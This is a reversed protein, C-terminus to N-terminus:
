QQDARELLGGITRALVKRAQEVDLHLDSRLTDWHPWVSAALLADVLEGRSRASLQALETRFVTEVDARALALTEQKILRLEESFPEHIRAARWSPAMAELVRARQAVFAAIREALAGEPPIPEILSLLIEVDRRGAHALLSEMDEFHQWVTRLSVGAQKAIRPATPRLDGAANLARIADIISLRTRQSRATRGDTAPGSRARAVPRDDVGGAAAHSQDTSTSRKTM